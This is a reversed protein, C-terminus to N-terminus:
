RLRSCACREAGGASGQWKTARLEAAEDARQRRRAGKM